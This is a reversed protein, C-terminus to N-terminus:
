PLAFNRIFPYTKGINIAYGATTLRKLLATAEGDAM